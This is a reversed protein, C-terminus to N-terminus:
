LLFFFKGVKFHINETMEKLFIMMESRGRKTGKVKLSNVDNDMIVVVGEAKYSKEKQKIKGWCHERLFRLETSDMPEFTCSSIKNKDILNALEHEANNIKSKECVICINRPDTLEPDIM